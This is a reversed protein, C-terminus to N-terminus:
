KHLLMNSHMPTDNSVQKAALIASYRFVKFKPTVFFKEKEQTYSLLHKLGVISLRGFEITNLPIIAVTEILLNLLVNDETLSM